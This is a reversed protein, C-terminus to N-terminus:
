TESNQFNEPFLIMFSIHYLIEMNVLLSYNHTVVLLMLLMDLVVQGFMLMNIYAIEHKKM